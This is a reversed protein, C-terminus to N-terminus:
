SKCALNGLGGLNRGGWCEEFPVCNLVGHVENQKSQKRHPEHLDAVVLSSSAAPSSSTGQMHDTVEWRGFPPNLSLYESGATWGGHSPNQVWKKRPPNHRTDM